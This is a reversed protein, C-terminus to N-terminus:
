KQGKKGKIKVKVSKIIVSGVEDPVYLRKKGNSERVELVLDPSKQKISNIQGRITSRDKGLLAALDEYSLRMESNLLAWVIAREMVTLKSLIDTQVATQVATQVDGGLPQKVVGQPHQKSVAGSIQPGFFSVFDKLEILDNHITLLQDKIQSIEEDHTSHKGDLHKIWEGVKNFDKKVHDFSEQVETKLKDVRKKHGFLGFMKINKLCSQKYINRSKPCGCVWVVGFCSFFVWSDLCVAASDL